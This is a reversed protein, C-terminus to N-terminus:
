YTLQWYVSGGDVCQFETTPFTLVYNNFLARGYLQLVGPTAWSYADGWGSVEGVYDGNNYLRVYYPTWNDVEVTCGGRAKGRTGAAKAAPPPTEQGEMNVDSDKKVNPDEGTGRSKQGKATKHNNDTAGKSSPTGQAVCAGALVLTVIMVLISVGLGRLMFTIAKM